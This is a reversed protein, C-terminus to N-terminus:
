DAKGRVIGALWLLGSGFLWLAAPTPVATPTLTIDLALSFTPFAGDVEVVGLVGDGDSDIVSLNIIGGPGASVDWVNVLDINVTSVWDYLGHMGWQGAGIDAEILAPATCQISGDALCAEWSYIGPTIIVNGVIPINNFGWLDDLFMSISGTADSYTGTVGDPWGGWATQGDSAYQVFSGNIDYTIAHASASLIYACVGILLRAKKM